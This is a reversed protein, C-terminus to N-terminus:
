DKGWGEMDGCRRGEVGRLTCDENLAVETYCIDRPGGYSRGFCRGIRPPLEVGDFTLRYIYRTDPGQPRFGRLTCLCVTEEEIRVLVRRYRDTGKWGYFPGVMYRLVDESLKANDRQRGSGEGDCWNVDVKHNGFRQLAASLSQLDAMAQRDCAGQAGARIMPLEILYIIGMIVAAIFLGTGLSSRKKKGQANSQNGAGGAPIREIILLGALPVLGLLSTWRSLGRGKAWLYFGWMYLVAGGGFLGLLYLRFTLEGQLFSLAPPPFGLVLEVFGFWWAAGGGAIMPGVVNEYAPRKGPKKPQAKADSKM